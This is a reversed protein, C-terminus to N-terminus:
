NKLFVVKNKAVRAWVGFLDKDPLLCVYYKLQRDIIDTKIYKGKYLYEKLQCRDQGDYDVFVVVHPDNKFLPEDEIEVKIYANVSDKM